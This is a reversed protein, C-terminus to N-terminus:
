PHKEEDPYAITNPPPPPPPLPPLPALSGRNIKSTWPLNLKRIFQEDDYRLSAEVEATIVLRTAPHWGPPCFGLGGNLHWAVPPRFTPDAAPNRMWEARRRAGPEDNRTFILEYGETTPVRGGGIIPDEAESYIYGYLRGLWIALSFPRPASIIMASFRANPALSLMQLAFEHQTTERM